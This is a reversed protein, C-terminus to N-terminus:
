GLVRLFVLLSCVKGFSITDHLYGATHVKIPKFAITKLWDFIVGMISTIELIEPVMNHLSVIACWDIRFHEGDVASVIM